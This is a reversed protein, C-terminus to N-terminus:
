EGDGTRACMGFTNCKWIVMSSPVLIIIYTWPRHEQCMSFMIIPMRQREDQYHGVDKRHSPPAFPAPAHLLFSWVLAALSLIFGVAVFVSMAFMRAFVFVIVPVFWAWVGGWVCM